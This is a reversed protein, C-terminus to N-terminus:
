HIKKAHTIEDEEKQKKETHFVGESQMEMQQKATFIEKSFRNQINPQIKKILSKKNDFKM